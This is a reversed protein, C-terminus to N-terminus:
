WKGTGSVSRRSAPGMGHPGGGGVSTSLTLRSGEPLRRVVRTRTSSEGLGIGGLPNQIAGLAELESKYGEIKDNANNLLLRTTALEQVLM